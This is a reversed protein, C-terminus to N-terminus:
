KKGKILEKLVSFTDYTAVVLFAYGIYNKWSGVDEARIFVTNLLGVIIFTVTRIIKWVVNMNINVNEM